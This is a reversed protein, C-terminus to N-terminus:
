LLSLLLCQLQADLVLEYFILASLAHILCYFSLCLMMQFTKSTINSCMKLIFQCYRLTGWSLINNLEKSTFKFGPNLPNYSHAWLMQHPILWTYLQTQGVLDSPLPSPKRVSQVGCVGFNLMQHLAGNAGGKHNKRKETCLHTLMAAGWLSECSVWTPLM